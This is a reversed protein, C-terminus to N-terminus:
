CEAHLAHSVDPPSQAVYSLHCWRATDASVDACSSLPLLQYGDTCTVSTDLMASGCPCLVGDWPQILLEPKKPMDVGALSAM